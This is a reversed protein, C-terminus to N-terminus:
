KQLEVITKSDISREAGAAVLVANRGFEPRMETNERKGNLCDFMYALMNNDAGGHNGPEPPVNYIVSPSEEGKSCVKEPYYIIKRKELQAYMQGETGNIIFNRGHTEKVSTTFSEVYTARCGNEYEIIVNTNDHTDKESNFVCTDSGRLLRADIDIVSSIRKGREDLDLYYVCENSRPCDHCSQGCDERPVFKDLGGFAAVRMPRADIFWNILDLSHCGKEVLLGGSNKRFRHWRRFYSYGAYYFETCTVSQPKGIKGETILEKMKRAVSNHRVNFGMFLQKGTKKATELMRDCEAVNIAMPKESFVAHGAELAACVIQAHTFQPTCVMVLDLDCALLQELSDAVYTQPQSEKQLWEAVIQNEEQSYDYIASIEADKCFKTKCVPVIFSLGRAGLGVVGIKLKKNMTKKVGSDTVPNGMM